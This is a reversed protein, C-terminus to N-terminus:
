HTTKDVTEHPQKAQDSQEMISQPLEIVWTLAEIERGLLRIGLKENILDETSFIDSTKLREVAADVQKQLSEIKAKVSSLFFDWHKDGTIEGAHLAARRIVQLDPKRDRTQSQALGKVRTGWDQDRDPRM